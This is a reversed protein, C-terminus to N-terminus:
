KKIFWFIYENFTPFALSSLITRSKGDDYFHNEWGSIAEIIQKDTADKTAPYKNRIAEIHSATIEIKKNTM